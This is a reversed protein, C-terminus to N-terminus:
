GDADRRARRYPVGTLSAVIEAAQRKEAPLSEWLRWFASELLSYAYTHEVQALAKLKAKAERTLQTNFVVLDKPRSPPRGPRPPM